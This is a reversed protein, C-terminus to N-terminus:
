KFKVNFKVEVADGTKITGMLATPPTIKYDTLNFKHSGSLTIVGGSTSESVNLTVAKTTGAFTFNGTMTWTNGSKKASSLKFSANAHSNTKMAEYAKKDMGAKGSKLTTAKMVVELNQIASLSNGSMTGKLTGTATNSKMEWDHMTSTGTIALSPNSQLTFTQAMALGSFMVMMAVLIQKM